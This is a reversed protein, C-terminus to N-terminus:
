KPIFVRENGNAYYWYSIQEFYEENQIDLCCAFYSQERETRRWAYREPKVEIDHSKFESLPIGWKLVFSDPKGHLFNM